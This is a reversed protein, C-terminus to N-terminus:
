HTVVPTGVLLRVVFGDHSRTIGLHDCVQNAIWLGRGGDQDTEALALGVTADHVGLGRDKVTVVVRDPGGWLRVDVPRSGYRHANTVVESVALALNDAADQGLRARTVAVAADRAASPSPDTLAVM